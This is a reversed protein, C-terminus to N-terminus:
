VANQEDQINQNNLTINERNLQIEARNASIDAQYTSANDPNQHMDVRDEHIQQQLQNDETRNSLDLALDTKVQYIDGAINQFLNINDWWNQHTDQRNDRIGTTLNADAARDAHIDQRLGFIGFLSGLPDFGPAPAPTITATPTVNVQADDAAVTGIACLLGLAVLGLLVCFRTNM